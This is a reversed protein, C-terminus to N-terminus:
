KVGFVLCAADRSHENTRAQWKTRKKFLEANWKTGGAQPKVPEYYIGHFECFEQWIKCDRKISGAGQLRERGSSGFWTRARADEFRIKIHEKPGVSNLVFDFAHIIGMSIVADFRQETINWVAIGTKVGPDIGIAYYHKMDIGVNM